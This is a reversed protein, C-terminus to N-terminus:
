DLCRRHLSCAHLDVVGPHAGSCLWLWERSRRGTSARPIRNRGLPQWGERPSGRHERYGTTDSREVCRSCAKIGEADRLRCKQIWERQWRGNSCQGASFRRRIRERRHCARKGRSTDSEDAGAKHARRERLAQERRSKVDDHPVAISRPHRRQRRESRFGGRIRHDDPSPARARNEAQRVRIDNPKTTM